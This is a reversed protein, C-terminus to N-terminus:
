LLDREADLERRCKPCMGRRLEARAKSTWNWTRTPGGCRVCPKSRWGDRVCRPCVITGPAIRRTFLRGTPHHVLTPTIVGDCVQCIPPLDSEDPDPVRWAGAELAAERVLMTRTEADLMM